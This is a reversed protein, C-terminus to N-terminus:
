LTRWFNSLYNLLVMVEVSKTDNNGSQGPIKGKFKFSDITTDDFFDNNDGNDDLTPKDGNFFCFRRSMKSYKDCKNILNYMPM